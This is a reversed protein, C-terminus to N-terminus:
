REVASSLALRFGLYFSRYGPASWMRFASRCGWVNHDWGGGRFVRESGPAAGLPDVQASAPYDGYWDSCWEWVNGHMDYLGFANARKLGVAHAYQEAQSNGNGDIGGWWGYESLQAADDGFSYATTKGARCAYEWEAETPLRYTRGEKASLRRCFEVADDWSVYTAANNSGEQVYMQGKWLTTGMVSEWQGQTVETTGLHYPKTLTVRHRTENDRREEESEPSGMMFTGAPILKLKMGISNTFEVPQDLYAAWAAQHSKAENESFPAIPIPPAQLSSQKRDSFGEVEVSKSRDSDNKSSLPWTTSVEGSEKLSPFSSYKAPPTPLDVEPVPSTPENTDRPVSEGTIQRSSDKYGSDKLLKFTGAFLVGFLITAAIVAIAKSLRRTHVNRDLTEIQNLASLREERKLLQEQLKRLDPADAKIELAENVKPLLGEPAKTAVAHSIIQRLQSLRSRRAQVEGIMKMISSDAFDADIKGFEKLCADYDQAAFLRQAEAYAQDCVARLNERRAVLKDKITIVDARDPRLAHLSEVDKLLGTLKKAAICQSIHLELRKCESLKDKVRSLHSAIGDPWRSTTVERLPEPVQLLAHIAAPYDFAAEHTLAEDVLSNIRDWQQTQQSQVDEIFQESWERYHGLRPDSQDRIETAIAIASEYDYANLERIADAQRDSLEALREKVLDNQNSGCNGCYQDWIPLQAECSLCTVELSGGCGRCYKRGAENIANCQNCQGVTLDTLQLDRTTLTARLSERFEIANQFRDDPADELAKGLFKTLSAPVQDLRIVKPSKGTVMQYLTAALSWLDSRADILAADRRQEPPMFDVTGLVAGTMTMGDDGAEIKALGFDTLKPTGDKTMLVNAPKIDRHIIGADHAKGLGDCLQCALNVATELSIADGSCQDLLTGGDVYEMILFPGDSSRGYDHIQVVHPHNLTAIAQAETVFRALASKSQALPGLVRKIAVKRKLRTDTALLVEGMGGQGLTGEIQYRKALDVIELDDQDPVAASTDLGGLTSQDGLSKPSSRQLGPLMTRDNNVSAASEKAMITSSPLSLRSDELGFNLPHSM